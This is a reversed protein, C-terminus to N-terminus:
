RARFDRQLLAWQQMDHFQGGWRGCQRLLGEQVFGQSAALRQSAANAPHIQAEVRNLAMQEFGWALVADLAERMLGRGQWSAGLEYGIVCKCWRRNWGFLGCTGILAGEDDDRSQLGWRTGPNPLERLGACADVLRRAADIDPLPDSGYWRMLEADGHLAFLAPVDGPVIERLMLRPTILRPFANV